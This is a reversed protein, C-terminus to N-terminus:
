LSVERPLPQVTRSRAGSADQGARRGLRRIILRFGVVTVLLAPVYMMLFTEVMDMQHQSSKWICFTLEALLAIDMLVVCLKQGRTLREDMM